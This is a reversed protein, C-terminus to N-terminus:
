FFGIKRAYALEEATFIDFVGRLEEYGSLDCTGPAQEMKAARGSGSVFANLDSLMCIWRKVASKLGDIGSQVSVDDLLAEDEYDLKLFAGSESDALPWPMKLPVCRIGDAAFRLRFVIESEKRAVFLSNGFQDSYWIKGANIFENKSIEFM